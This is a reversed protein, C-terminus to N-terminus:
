ASPRTLNKMWDFRNIKVAAVFCKLIQDCKLCAFVAWPPAGFRAAAISLPLVLLFAFLADTRFVFGVDGGAKILGALGATQYCSGLFSLSLVTIFQRACRAAAATVGAYLAIFPGKLLAILGCTAFGVGIFLIQATRAYEKMRETEGSGVTKGTIVSMATSVGNQAVYALANMSNAISAATIVSEDFRGLIASSAMLNVSWVLQAGIIPLGNRLFDRRLPAESALLDRAQLRLRHDFRAICLLMVGTEAARSILTSIAAGRVGLEPLGLKGFILLYNLALHLALSVGSVAMGMRAIEVSRMAAILAQTTLFFVYSLCAIRLYAAGQQLVAAEATFISLIARPFFFCVGGLLLGFGLSLRLGIAVIKRISATDRKGWYQASLILITGEVGGSLMQLFTQIQGGLYVGSIASDGLAGVMLNDAFGAAFTLLNQLAVPLALTLLSRYFRRDRTLLRM